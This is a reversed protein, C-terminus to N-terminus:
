FAPHGEPMDTVGGLKTGDGFKNITFVPGDDLDNTFINFLVPGIISGQPVGSTM